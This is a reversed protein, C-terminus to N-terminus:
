SKAASRTTFQPLYCNGGTEREREDDQNDPDFDFM